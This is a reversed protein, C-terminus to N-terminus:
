LQNKISVTSGAEASTFREPAPINRPALKEFSEKVPRLEEFMQPLNWDKLELYRRTTCHQLFQSIDQWHEMPKDALTKLKKQDAPTIQLGTRVALNDISIDNTK